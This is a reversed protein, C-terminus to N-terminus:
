GSLIEVQRYEPVSVRWGLEDQIRRRLGDSAEPEGHVVFTQRPAQVFQRLWQVIEDGDAHASLGELLEVRARVPVYEGHIKVSPEGALLSAGRTGGPQHGTLVIANRPEPAYAKLHHLVRGGTAMGSGALIVLPGRFHDLARSEERDTVRHAVERMAECQAPSLRHEAAHRLWAETTDVAMPSDLFVPVRPIEGAQRLQAILHLLAQARGVAFVPVILAGGKAATERILAGLRVRPDVRPHLRHGYTSEVLLWDAQEIAAPARMIPDEPRGLDGTFVLRGAPTKLDIIAAGLIHGAPRLRVTFGPALPKERDYDLVSVLELSKRADAETYLPLAPHHRSFGHRNAYDAEEEQLRGSDPLLIALLDRTAPTCIVPGRFGQRYLLPLYGSHDLHAHSLVATTIRAPSLPFPERNRLRLQKWGQFLGCDLLLNQGPSQMLYKSGTVTAAGGLFRLRIKM